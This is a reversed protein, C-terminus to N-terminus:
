LDVDTFGAGVGNGVSAWRSRGKTGISIAHRDFIGALNQVLSQLWDSLLVGFSGPLAPYSFGQIINNSKSCKFLM